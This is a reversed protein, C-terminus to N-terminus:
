VGRPRNEMTSTEVTPVTDTGFVDARSVDRRSRESSTDNPISQCGRPQRAISSPFGGWPPHYYVTSYPVSRKELVTNTTTNTDVGRVRMGCSAKSEVPPTREVTRVRQARCTGRQQAEQAPDHEPMQKSRVLVEPRKVCKNCKKPQDMSTSIPEDPYGEM